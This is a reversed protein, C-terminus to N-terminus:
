AIAEEAICAVKHGPRVELLPPTHTTCQPMARSCRPAFRCGEGPAILKPVSGPISALRQASGAHDVRPISRILGQTYPHRPHAFL